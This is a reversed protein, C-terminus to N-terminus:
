PARRQSRALHHLGALRDELDGTLVPAVRHEVHRGLDIREAGASGSITTERVSSGDTVAMPRTRWTSGCASGIVRVKRTRTLRISGGGAINRPAVTFPRISSLDVGPM